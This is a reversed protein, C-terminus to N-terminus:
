IMPINMNKMLTLKSEIHRELFKEMDDLTYM